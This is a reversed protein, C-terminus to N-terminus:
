RDVAGTDVVAGSGPGATRHRRGTPCGHCAAAGRHHAYTPHHDVAQQGADWPRRGGARVACHVAVRGGVGTRRRTRWAVPGAVGHGVTGGGGVVAGSWAAVLAGFGGPQGAVVLVGSAAAAGALNGALVVVLRSWFVAAPAVPLAQWLEGRPDARPGAVGVAGALVVLAVMDAFVRTGWAPSPVVRALVVGTALGFVTLVALVRPLLRLQWRTVEMSLRWSRDVSPAVVQVPGSRRAALAPVLLADFAPVLVPGRASQSQRAAARVNAWAECRTRCAACGALHAAAPAPLDLGRASATLMEEDLHMM